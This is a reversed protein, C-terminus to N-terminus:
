FEFISKEIRQPRPKVRGMTNAAFTVKKHQGRPSLIPSKLLNGLDHGSSNHDSSSLQSSLSEHSVISSSDTSLSTLYQKSLPSPSLNGVTRKVPQPSFLLAAANRTDDEPSDVSLDMHSSVKKAANATSTSSASPVGLNNNASHKLIPKSHCIPNANPSFPGPVYNFDYDDDDDNNEPAAAPKTKSDAAPVSPPSSIPKVSETPATVTVVVSNNVQSNVNPITISQDSQKTVPEPTAPPTVLAGTTTAGAAPTTSSTTSATKQDATTTAEAPKESTTDLNKNKLAALAGKVKQWGKKEAPKPSVSKDGSVAAAAELALSSSYPSAFSYSSSGYLSSSYYSSSYSSASSFSSYNNLSSFTSSSLVDDNDNDINSNKSKDETKPPDDEVGEWNIDVKKIQKLNEKLKAWGGGKKSGSGSSTSTASSTSSSVGLNYSASSYSSM